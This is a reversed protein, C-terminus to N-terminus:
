DLPMPSDFFPESLSGSLVEGVPPILIRGLLPLEFFIAGGFGGFYVEGSSVLEFARADVGPLDVGVESRLFTESRVWDERVDRGGRSSVGGGNGDCGIGFFFSRRPEV